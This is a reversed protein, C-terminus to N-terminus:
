ACRLGENRKQTQIIKTKVQNIFSEEKQLIVFMGSRFAAKKSNITLRM